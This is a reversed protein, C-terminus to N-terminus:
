RYRRQYGGITLTAMIIGILLALEMSTGSIVNQKIFEEELMMEGATWALLGAGLYVVIPFHEMMRLIFQSAFLMIPISLIIGVIVLMMNGESVAVIGLVNDLSMLVDAFIIIVIAEKLSNGVKVSNEEAEKDVLLKYAVFLLLIGGILHIFPLKLLYMVIVTFAIRFIVAGLTGWVIAKQKLDQRLNRSAMAIVIANDGSLILNIMLIKVLPELLEM